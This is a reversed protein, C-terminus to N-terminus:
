PEKVEDCICKVCDKCGDCDCCCPPEESDEEDCGKCHDQNMVSCIFQAFGNSQDECFEEHCAVTTLLATLLFLPVLIRLSRKKKM